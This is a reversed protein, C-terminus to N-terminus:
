YEYQPSSRLGHTSASSRSARCRRTESSESSLVRRLQHTLQESYAGSVKRNPLMHPM